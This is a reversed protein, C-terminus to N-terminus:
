STDEKMGPWEDKVIGRHALEMLHVLAGHRTVRRNTIRAIESAAEWQYEEPVMIRILDSVATVADNLRPRKSM